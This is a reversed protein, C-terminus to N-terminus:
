AHDLVTALLRDLQAREDQGLGGLLDEAARDRARAVLDHVREGEPTLEVCTARRDSADPCRRVLGHHELADVVETASRSAIRLVEALHSLRPSGSRRVVGLARAQSPTIVPEMESLVSAYRRRLARAVSMLLDATSDSGPATPVPM